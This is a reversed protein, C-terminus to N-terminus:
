SHSLTNQIVTIRLIIENLDKLRRPQEVLVSAVLLGVLVKSKFVVHGVVVESDEESGVLRDDEGFLGADGDPLRVLGDEVGILGDPLGM